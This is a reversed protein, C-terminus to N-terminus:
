QSTTKIYVKNLIYIGAMIPIIWVLANIKHEPCECLGSVCHNLSNMKDIYNM